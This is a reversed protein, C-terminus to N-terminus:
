HTEGCSDEGGLEVGEFYEHALAEEASCRRGPDFQLMRSLLDVAVEGAAGFRRHLTPARGPLRALYARWAESQM